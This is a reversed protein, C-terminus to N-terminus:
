LSSLSYEAFSKPKLPMTSCLSSATEERSKRISDTKTHADTISDRLLIASSIIRHDESNLKTSNGSSYEDVEDIIGCFFFGSIASSTLAFEPLSIPFKVATIDM